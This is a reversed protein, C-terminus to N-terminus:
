QLCLDTFVSWQGSVVSWQGSVVSWQPSTLELPQVHSAISILWTQHCFLSCHSLLSFSSLLSSLSSLSLPSSFSSLLSFSSVLSFSSLLSFSSVLSLSLLSSLSLSLLSFTHTYVQVKGDAHVVEEYSKDNADIITMVTPGGSVKRPVTVSQDSGM